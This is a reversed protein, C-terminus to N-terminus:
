CVQSVLCLPVCELGLGGGERGVNGRYSVIKIINLTPTSMTSLHTMHTHEQENPNTWTMMMMMEHKNKKSIKYEASVFRFHGLHASNLLPVSGAVGPGDEPLPGGGGPPATDFRPNLRPGDPENPKGAATGDGRAVLGGMDAAISSTGGVGVVAGFSM